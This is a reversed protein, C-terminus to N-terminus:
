RGEVLHDVITEKRVLLEAMRLMIQWEKRTPATFLSNRYSRKYASLPTSYAQKFLVQAFIV